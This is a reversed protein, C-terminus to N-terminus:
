FDPLQQIIFYGGKVNIDPHWLLDMGRVDEYNKEFAQSRFMEGRCGSLQSAAYM